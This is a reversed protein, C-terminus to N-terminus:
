RSCVLVSPQFTSLFFEQIPKKAAKSSILCLLLFVDIDTFWAWHLAEEPLSEPAWRASVEFDYRFGRKPSVSVKLLVM